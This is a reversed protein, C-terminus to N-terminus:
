LSVYIGNSILYEGIVIYLTDMADDISNERKIHEARANDRSIKAKLFADLYSDGKRNTLFYRFDGMCSHLGVGDVVSIADEIKQSFPETPIKDKADIADQILKKQETNCACSLATDGCNSTVNVNAGAKLLLRTQEATKAYMLATYGEHNMTNVVAGADLLLRTQEDSTACMLATINYGESKAKADAGAKLLVRTEIANEADILAQNLKALLDTTNM